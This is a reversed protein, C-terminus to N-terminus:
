YNLATSIFRLPKIILSWADSHSILKQSSDHNNSHFYLYMLSFFYLYLLSFFTHLTFKHVYEDTVHCFLVFLLIDWWLTCSSCGMDPIGPLLFTESKLKRQIKFYKCIYLSIEKPHFGLDLCLIWDHKMQKTCM